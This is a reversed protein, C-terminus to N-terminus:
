RVSQYRPCSKFRQRWRNAGTEDEVGWQPTELPREDPPQWECTWIRDPHELRVHFDSGKPVSSGRIPLTPFGESQQSGSFERTCPFFCPFSGIQSGDPGHFTLSLWGLRARQSFNGLAGFLSDRSPSCPIHLPGVWAPLVVRASTLGSRFPWCLCASEM